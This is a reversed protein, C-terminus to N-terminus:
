CTISNSMFATFRTITFIILTRKFFHLFCFFRCPYLMNMIIFIPICTSINNPYHSELPFLPIMIIIVMRAMFASEFFPNSSKYNSPIPFLFCMLAGGYQIRVYNGDRISVTEYKKILSNSECRKSTGYISGFNDTSRPSLYPNIRSRDQASLMRVYM